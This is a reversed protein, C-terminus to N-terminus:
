FLYLNHSIITFYLLFLNLDDSGAAFLLGSKTILQGGVSGGVSGWLPDFGETYGFPESWKILGTGIDIVVLSSFPPKVCPVGSNAQFKTFCVSYPTGIMRNIVVPKDGCWSPAEEDGPFIVGAFALNKMKFAILQRTEDVSIGGYNIVGTKLPYLLFGNLSPPTFIKGQQVGELQNYLNLCDTFDDTSNSFINENSFQLPILNGFNGYMPFPQTPYPVEGPVDSQFPVPIEEIEFVEEGTLADFVFIFGMKTPFVIVRRESNFSNNFPISINMITPQAPNDYDWLNHHVTQFYWIVNGNTANLAVISNSYLNSGIRAGGYQDVSPSTTPLYVIGYLEDASMLSWVNGGGVRETGNKYTSYAPDSQNHPIPSFQWSFSGNYASFSLVVGSAINQEVSDAIANGVIVNNCVVIPPSTVGMVLSGDIKNKCKPIYKCLNIQGNVGFQPCFQGTAGDM